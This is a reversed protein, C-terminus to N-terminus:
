SSIYVCLSKSVPSSAFVYGLQNIVAWLEARGHNLLPLPLLRAGADERPSRICAECCLGSSEVERWVRESEPMKLKERPTPQDAGEQKAQSHTISYPCDAHVEPQYDDDYSGTM